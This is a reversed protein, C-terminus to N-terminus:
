KRQYRRGACAEILGFLELQTLASLIAPIPLNTEAALEDSGVPQRSICDLIKRQNENLYSPLATTPVPAPSSQPLQFSLQAPQTDPMDPVTLRLYPFQGLIDEVCTAMTAGQTILWNTAQSMESYIEGPVAFVERDQTVAHGATILSGSHRSGEVVVVGLSLGSIIRNRIPFHFPLPQEGPPFESVVAGGSRLIQGHLEQNAMPYVMDLGCGLVAVTCGGAALAATHSITDIGYALGSVVVVGCQVLQSTLDTAVKRGYETYKRTGVMAIAPRTDDIAGLSGLLYLVSPPAYINRLRQPYQQSDPTLVTCGLRYARALTADAQSELAARSLVQRQERPTLWRSQELADKSMSFLEAPHGVAALVQQSRVTGYGFVRQYMLWSLREDM